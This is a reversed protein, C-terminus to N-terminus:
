QYKLASVPDPAIPNPKIPAMTTRIHAKHWHTMQLLNKQKKKVRSENKPPNKTSIQNCRTILLAKIGHFVTSLKTKLITM